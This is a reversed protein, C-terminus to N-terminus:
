PAKPTKGLSDALCAVFPPNPVLHFTTTTPASADIEANPETNQARVVTAFLLFALSFATAAFKM